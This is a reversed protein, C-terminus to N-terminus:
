RSADRGGERLPDDEGGLAQDLEGMGVTNGAGEGADAPEGAQETGREMERLLPGPMPYETPQTAPQTDPIAPIDAQTAPPSTPQTAAASDDSTLWQGHANVRIDETALLLRLVNQRYDRRAQELRTRAELLATNASIIEEPGLTRSKLTVEAIRREALAVNRQQLGLNLQDRTVQRLARRVELAVRDRELRYNREAEELSVLASRYRVQEAFREVPLELTLGATLSGSGADLDLGPYPRDAETPLSVESTLNLDPLLGNKAIRVGRRADVVADAVNQLDLRQGIAKGVAEGAAMAVEPLGEELAVLNMPEGVDMGIQLKFGDLSAALSEQQNALDSRSFLVQTQIRQVEFYAVRGAQALSEFRRAQLELSELQRRTNEVGSIQELLSYYQSAVDVLFSRRFREFDRVQYILDRRAQVLTERAAEGAGRLLPLEMSVAVEASQTDQASGVESRLQTVYDVLASASVSGGYPLKQTVGMEQVLQLAQDHDGGEPVTTYNTSVTSFFQPGWAHQEALFRIAKLFLQEKQSRYEPARRIAYALVQDLTMAGALSEQTTPGTAPQTTAEGEASKEVPETAAKGGREPQKRDWGGIPPVIEPDHEIGKNLRLEQERRILDAAKEDLGKLASDGCGAIAMVALFCITLLVRVIM